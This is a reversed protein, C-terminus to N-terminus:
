FLYKKEVQKRKTQKWYFACGFAVVVFHQRYSGETELRWEGLCGCIPQSTVRLHVAVRHTLGMKWHTCSHTWVTACSAAVLLSSSCFPDWVSWSNSASCPNVRCSVNPQANHKHTCMFLRHRKITSCHQAQIINWNCTTNWQAPKLRRRSCASM